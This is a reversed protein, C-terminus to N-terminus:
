ARNEAQYCEWLRAVEEVVQSVTKGDTSVAHRAKAYLPARRSLLEEIRLRVADRGGAAGALLPREAGPNDHGLRDVLTGADATLAVTMGAREMAERNRPDLMAGGGTSVVRRSGAALSAVAARELDRFREEGDDTFIDVVPKGAARVIADDTDAFEFGLRKALAKGVTTKGTGMFGALIINEGM